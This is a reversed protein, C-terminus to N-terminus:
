IYGKDKLKKTLMSAMNNHFFGMSNILRGLHKDTFSYEDHYKNWVKPKINQPYIAGDIVSVNYNMGQYNFSPSDSWVQIEAVEFIEKIDKTTIVNLDPNTDLWDFFDLIKIEITYSKSPNDELKFSKPDVSQFKHDPEYIETAPTLFQFTVANDKKDLIVDILRTNATEKGMASGREKATNKTFDSMGASRLLDSFFLAERIVNLSSKFIKIEYLKNDKEYSDKSEFHTGYRGSIDCLIFLSSEENGTWSEIDMPPLYVLRRDLGRVLQVPMKNNLIKFNSIPFNPRRSDFYIVYTKISSTALVRSMRVNSYESLGLENKLEIGTM